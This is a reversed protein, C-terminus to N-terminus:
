TAELVARFQSDLAWRTGITTMAMAVLRAHNPGSVKFTGFAASAAPRHHNAAEVPM